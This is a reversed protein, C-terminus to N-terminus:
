ARVVGVAIGIREIDDQVNSLLKEGSGVADALALLEEAVINRTGKIKAVTVFKSLSYRKGWFLSPKNGYEAGFVRLNVRKALQVVEDALRYDIVKREPEERKAFSVREVITAADFGLKTGCNSCFKGSAKTGCEHCFKAEMTKEGDSSQVLKNVARSLAVSAGHEKNYVTSDTASFSGNHLFKGGYEAVFTSPGNAPRREIIFGGSKHTHRIEM